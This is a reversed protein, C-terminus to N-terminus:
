VNKLTIIQEIPTDEHIESQIISQQLLVAKIQRSITATFNGVIRFIQHSLQYASGVVSQALVTNTIKLYIIEFYKETLLIISV